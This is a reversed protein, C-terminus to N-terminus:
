EEAPAEESATEMEELLGIAEETPLAPEEALKEPEKELVKKVAFATGGAGILAASGWFLKKTSITAM